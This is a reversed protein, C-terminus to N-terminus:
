KVGEPITKVREFKSYVPMLWFYAFYVMTFVRALVVYTPTAPQLGIFGLGIFSIAFRLSGRAVAMGQLSDFTSEFPRAVSPVSVVPRRAADPTCGVAPRAGCAPDRLLSRLVLRARHARSDVHSECARFQGTELFLGGFTPAFFLVSAFIVLFTGVSLLDKVTYYPHFPIGDLPKGHADVKDKIEIGDPNNSGVTHLAVIHLTVLLLLALPVAIVHLSFFRNLTADSIGYDGRIWEVLDPGIVPLTGFLNVIVQAGWYSMNGWPLVYGM